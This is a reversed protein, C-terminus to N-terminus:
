RIYGLCWIEIGATQTSGNGNGYRYQIDGNADVQCIVFASQLNGSADDMGSRGRYVCFQETGSPNRVAAVSGVIDTTQVMLIAARAGAPCTTGLDLTTWSTWSVGLVSSATNLKQVPAVLVIPGESNAWDVDTIAHDKFSVPAYMNIVDDTGGYIDVGHQGNMYILAQSVGADNEGQCYIFGGHARTKIYFADTAGAKMQEINFNAGDDFIRGDNGTGFNQVVGDNYTQNATWAQGVGLQAYGTFDAGGMETEAGASDRFYIKTTGGDDLSYLRATDAAPNTPASPQEAIDMHEFVNVENAFVGALKYTASGVDLTDTGKVPVFDGSADIEWNSGAANEWAVRDTGPSHMFVAGGSGDLLVKETAQVSLNLAELGVYSSNAGDKIELLSASARQMYIDPAVAGGQGWAFARRSTDWFLEPFTNGLSSFLGKEVDTVISSLFLKDVDTRSVRPGTDVAASITDKNFFAM